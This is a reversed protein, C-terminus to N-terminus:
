LFVSGFVVGAAFFLWSEAPRAKLWRMFRRGRVAWEESDDGRRVRPDDDFTRDDNM